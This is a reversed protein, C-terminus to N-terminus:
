SGGEVIHLISKNKSTTPRTSLPYLERAQDSFTPLLPTSLSPYLFRALQTCDYAKCVPPTNTTDPTTTSILSFSTTERRNQMLKGGLSALRVCRPAATNHM